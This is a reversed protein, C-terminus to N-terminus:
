SPYFSIHFVLNLLNGAADSIVLHLRNSSAGNRSVLGTKLHHNGNIYFLKNTKVSQAKFTFLDNYSLMEPSSLTFYLTRQIYEKSVVQIETPAINKM